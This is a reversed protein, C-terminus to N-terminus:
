DTPKPDLFLTASQATIGMAGMEILSKNEGFTYLPKGWAFVEQCFTETKGGPAAYTVFVWAALAAVLRNRRQATQVTARRQHEAFPSLLLLRGADLPARYERPVRMRALCRAPCIVIPQEGRLLITLAEREVPSHFGGIIPVGARRLEQALDHAQLIFRGPCRVSAFFALARHQLLDLNGLADLFAPADDSLLHKLAVPYAPEGQHVRATEIV